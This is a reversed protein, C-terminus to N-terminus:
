WLAVAVIVIRRADLDQLAEFCNALTRAHVDAVGGIAGTEVVHHEFHEVVRDVFRQRAVAVVDLDDNVGVVRDRDDVVAAANRGIDFFVVIEAARRGLDDHGLQVGAALEILVAVFDGAAEVADANRDDVRQRAPELERDPAVALLVEHLEAVALRHRRQRDGAVGGALAAGLHHEQRRGFSEGHGLEVPRRQLVAQALEGEEIRAHADHKGVLTM